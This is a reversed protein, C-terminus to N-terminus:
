TRGGQEEEGEANEGVPLDVHFRTHKGVESEVSLVGGHDKVIGHSISLGLGTGKDKPKTTFFPDFIRGRIEPPIGPGHDEVTLRLWRVPAPKLNRTEPKLARDEAGGEEVGAPRLDSIPTKEGVGGSVVSSGEVGSLPRPQGSIVSWQDSIVSLQDSIVERGGREANRTGVEANGIERATVRVIKDAHYGPYKENLADRANTLLNMLVQQLQQSRCRIKPLDEPVDVELTIQDHRMVTRILSLTNEVIDKPCASSHGQKDHRAFTLLNKVITAVRETERLIEAAYGALKEDHGSAVDHILQAYNLIGNIPNNIEHAVGSALTGISELKQSQVLQAQIAVQADEAMAQRVALAVASSLGDLIADEAPVIPHKAFLALVGLTEGDSVRLQYGAFSVLGLEHAWEHNHVRPDNRADNTLFKHEEDAAVRGIKYCGFPVRRHVNGDIHTYRGSSALLHLCRGRFRCVHPGEKAEAHVCGQECRDGPRILWIRCFDVDFLRVIAETVLRLRDEVSASTLLSQQVASADQQWRLTRERGGEARKQDELTSLMARRSREARDLSQHLEDEVRQRTVIESQLHENAQRLAGAQQELSVNARSLNLHTKVRALLEEPRFPKTIYDAAGLQLGEVSEKVGGTGSIFIIPIHRTEKRAKLRRCVELGDIGTMRVDLLILDPPNAAVAAMALEGSDAPRVQYGAPTLIQVLLALSESTDDVVLITALPTNM